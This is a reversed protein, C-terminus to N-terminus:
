YFLSLPLSIILNVKKYSSSTPLAEKKEIEEEKSEEINELDAEYKKTKPNTKNSNDKFISLDIKNLDDEQHDFINTVIRAM